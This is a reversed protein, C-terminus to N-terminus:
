LPSVTTMFFNIGDVMIQARQRTLKDFEGHAAENRQGGWSTIDKVQQANLVGGARLAEAYSQIGPKGKVMASLTITLSRLTEELAAGALMVPAAPHVRTDDLLIQVQEMLDTAADVRARAAPSIRDAMGAQTYQGWGSLLEALGRLGAAAGHHGPEFLARAANDFASGPANRALFDLGQAALPRVEFAVMNDYGRRAEAQLSAAQALAWELTRDDTM